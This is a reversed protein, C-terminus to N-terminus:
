LYLENKHIYKLVERSIWKQVQKKQNLLERLKTSSVQLKNMNISICSIKPWKTRNCGQRAAVSITSLNAVKEYDKWRKFHKFTDAGLLLYFEANEGLSRRLSRLTTITYSVRKRKVELDSVKLWKFKLSALQAMRLRHKSSTPKTKQKFPSIYAPILLVSDLKLQHKAKKALEIHAQHIPDFTGGLIGIRKIKKAVM